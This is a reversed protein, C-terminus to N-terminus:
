EKILCATEVIGQAISLSTKAVSYAMEKQALLKKANECNIPNKEACLQDVLNSVEDVAVKAADLALEAKALHEKAKDCKSQEQQECSILLFSLMIMLIIILRM